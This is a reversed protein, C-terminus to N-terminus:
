CSDVAHYDKEEGLSTNGSSTHLPVVGSWYLMIRYRRMNLLSEMRTSVEFLVTTL